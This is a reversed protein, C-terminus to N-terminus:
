TKRLLSQRNVIMRKRMIKNMGGRIIIQNENDAKLQTEKQKRVRAAAFMAQAKEYAELTNIVEIESVHENGIVVGCSKAVELFHNTNSSSSVSFSSMSKGTDQFLKSKFAQAKELIKVEKDNFRSSSKEALIFKPRKSSLIERGSVNM